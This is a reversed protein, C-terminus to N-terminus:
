FSNINKHIKAKEKKIKIKELYLDTKRFCNNFNIRNANNAIYKFYEKQNKSLISMINETKEKNM